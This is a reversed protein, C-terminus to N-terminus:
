CEHGIIEKIESENIEKVIEGTIVTYFTGLTGGTIIGVVVVTSGDHLKLISGLDVIGM